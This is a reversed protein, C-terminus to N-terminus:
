RPWCSGRRDGRLACRPWTPTSPTRSRTASRTGGARSPPTWRRHACSTPSWGPLLFPRGATMSTEGALHDAVAGPDMAPDVGALRGAIYAHMDGRGRQQAAPGDLDLEAAGATLVDLLSPETQGRRLERTSIIVTAYPALRLLLEEAVAFAQGRAEDLGDMVLVPVAASEDAARQVQGVLEAANRRDPQAALVGARVLQGAILEAARDATLGRAHVHAAVSRVEPDAHGLPRGEALLREREAPNSLSVVRGAIATKGTGASGTIVHLGPRGSRVWGVVQGVEATRGTFWSHEGQTAGGRAALLLHEVVREPAGPDYRPNPFMWWASGHSRFDPTHASTAWTKLIADCLDDGRIYQSQPSWRQVLLARTGPGPEPGSELMGALREAFLGDRAVEEPLCSTLVGVWVHEAEPPSQQMIRTAVEGAAVAKGSFCTDVILLLQSAGSEACPAAVDSGAGLGDSKHDGSDRALLRLGDAPSPIAHGSWLLVLSGDCGSLSDQLGRLCDRAEQEVPNSLVTCDDFSSMLLAAVREVDPVARDLRLHGRDYEGVGVGVFRALTM